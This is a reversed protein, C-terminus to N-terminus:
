IHFLRTLTAYMKGRPKKHWVNIDQYCRDLLPERRREIANHRRLLALAFLPNSPLIATSISLLNNWQRYKHLCISTIPELSIREPLLLRLQGRLAPRGAESDRWLRSSKWTRRVTLIIGEIVTSCDNWTLRVIPERRPIRNGRVPFKITGGALFIKGRSRAVCACRDRTPIRNSRSPSTGRRRPLRRFSVSM